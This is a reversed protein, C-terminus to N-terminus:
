RVGSHCFLYLVLGGFLLTLGIGVIAYWPSAPEASMRWAAEVRSPDITSDGYYRGKGFAARYGREFAERNNM